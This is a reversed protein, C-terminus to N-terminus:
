AEDEEPAARGRRAVGTLDRVRGSIDPARALATGVLIADAGWTAVRTVDERTQIGSEAVAVRGAPVAPLLAALRELDVAFSDLDRSNVGICEPQVAQARSVEALTHAEVLRALGLEAALDALAALTGDDLARVILLVASAGAARSEYLQVPDLIFDKRLLPLEVAARVRRLDELSGGFHPGDTLVSLARAGGDAYRRAHDAPDLAPVIPGASPSRRKVEAIVAVESGGFAATWSRPDRAAAAAREIAPREARLARVRARTAALIESLRAPAAGRAQPETM